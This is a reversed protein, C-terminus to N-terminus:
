HRAPVLREASQTLPTEHLPVTALLGAKDRSGRLTLAAHIKNGKAPKVWVATASKVDTVVPGDAPVAVTRTHAGSATVTVIEVRAPEAATLMLSASGDPIGGPVPVGAAGAAAPVAPSWTLDTTGSDGSRSMAAAAVPVDGTVQVNYDGPKLGSLTVAESSGAPVTQVKDFEVAGKTDVARVRVIADDKGPVAVRVQPAADTASVGPVDLSKAPTVPASTTDEGAPTEGNMWADTLSASVGAGTATVHVAAASLPSSFDGLTIVKREDPALVTGEVTVDPDPGDTGVVTADVTTPTAGTNVLTLRAVRGDDHGGGFFWGDQVPAACGSVNLGRATSRTDLQTQTAVLGSALAGKGDVSAAADAPLDAHTASGRRLDMPTSDDTTLAVSGSAGAAGPLWAAPASAVQVSGKTAGGTCSLSLDHLASSTTDVAVKHVDAPRTADATDTVQTAGWVLGAGALVAVVGRAPGLLQAARM